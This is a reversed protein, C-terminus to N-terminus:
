NNEDNLIDGELDAKEQEAKVQKACDMCLTRGFKSKSSQAIARATYKGKDTIQCGCEDCFYEDQKPAFPRVRIGGVKDGAFMVNPDAFVLIKHGGWEEIFPTGTVKEITKMNTVNGVMKLQRGDEGIEKFYIVPEKDKRGKEGTIEESKVAYDITLEKDSDMCYWAGIYEKNFCKKWHTKTSM